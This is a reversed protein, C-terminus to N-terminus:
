SPNSLFWNVMSNKFEFYYRDRNIRIVRFRKNAILKKIRSSISLKKLGRFAVDFLTYPLVLPLKVIDILAGVGALTLAAPLGKSAGLLFGIGAGTVLYGPDYKSDMDRVITTLFDPLKSQPILGMQVEALLEGSEAAFIKDTVQIQSCNSLSTEELCSLLIFNKVKKQFYLSKFKGKALLVSKQELPSKIVDSHAEFSMAWIVVLSLLIVLKSRLMIFVM